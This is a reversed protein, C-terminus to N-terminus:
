SAGATVERTESESRAAPLVHMEVDRLRALVAGDSGVVEISSLTRLEALDQARLVLRLPGEFPGSRYLEVSGVRTPLSSRDLAALGWLIALQLAGDLAAADLQWAGPWGADLTGAAVAAAGERSLGTVSRLVQFERGHFLREGYHGDPGWPVPELNPDPAPRGAAAAETGMEATASYHLTGGAGHLELALRAGSGNEVERATVCFAEGPGEFRELRIGKLVRVDELEHLVLDPRLARAARAFWELALVVPVVPTGKVRHADLFPCTARSAIFSLTRKRQRAGALAMEAPDPGLVVEAPAAGHGRLEDVFM